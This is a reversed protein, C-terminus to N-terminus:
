LPYNTHFGLHFPNQRKKRCDNQQPSAAEGQEGRVPLGPFLRTFGHLRVRDGVRLGRGRFDRLRAARFFGAFRFRIFLVRGGFERSIRIGPVAPFLRRSVAPGGVRHRVRFDRVFAPPRVRRLFSGPVLEGFLFLRPILVSQLGHLLFGRDGRKGLLGTGDRFNVPVADVGVPGGDGDALLVAHAVDEVPRVPLQLKGRGSAFGDEPAALVAVDVPVGADRQVANRHAGDIAATIRVAAM